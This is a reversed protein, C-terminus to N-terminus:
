ALSGALFGLFTPGYDTMAGKGVTCKDGRPDFTKGQIHVFKTAAANSCLTDAHPTNGPAIAAVYGRRCLEGAVFFQSANGRFSADRPM